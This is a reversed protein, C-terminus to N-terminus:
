TISISNKKKLLQNYFTENMEVPVDLFPFKVKYKGKTTSINEFDQVEQNLNKEEM